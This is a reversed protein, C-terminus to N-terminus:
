QHCLIAFINECISCCEPNVLARLYRKEKKMSDQIARKRKNNKKKVNYTKTYIYTPTTDVTAPPPPLARDPYTSPIPVTALNLPRQPIDDKGVPSKITASVLLLITRFIIDLPIYVGCGYM